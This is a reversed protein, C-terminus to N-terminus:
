TTPPTAQGPIIAAATLQFIGYWSTDAKLMNQPIQIPQRMQGIKM